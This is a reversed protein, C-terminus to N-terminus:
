SWRWMKRPTTDARAEAWEELWREYTTTPKEESRVLLGPLPRGAPLRADNWRLDMSWRVIDSRNLDSGHPTRGHLLLVGGKAVPVTVPEGEPLLEPNITLGYGPASVHERIEGHHMRPYVQLTGTEVTADVLPIWTTVVMTEDAEPLLVGADQHAPSKGAFDEYDPGTFGTPLKPRIHQCPHCYVEPGVLSEVLDHLKSNNLFDYLPRRLNNPFSVRSQLSTGAARTLYAIRTEFPKEAYPADIAGEDLLDRAVEGVLADFDAILPDLDEAGLVGEVALYGDQHFTEVQGQTLRM